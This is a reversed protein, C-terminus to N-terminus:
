SEGFKSEILKPNGQGDVCTVTLTREGLPSGPPCLVRAGYAPSHLPATLTALCALSGLPARM